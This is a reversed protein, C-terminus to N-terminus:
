IASLVYGACWRAGANTFIKRQKKTWLFVDVSYNADRLADAITHASQVDGTVACTAESEMRHKAVIRYKNMNMQKELHTALSQMNVSWFLM